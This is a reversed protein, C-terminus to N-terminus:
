GKPLGKLSKSLLRATELVREAQEPPLQTAQEQLQAAGAECVSVVPGVKAAGGEKSIDKTLELLLFRAAVGRCILEDAQSSPSMFAQSESGTLMISVHGLKLHSPSGKKLHAKEAILAARIEEMRKTLSEVIEQLTLPAAETVPAGELKATGSVTEPKSPPPEAAGAPKDQEDPLPVAVAAGVFRSSPPAVAVAERAASEAVQQRVAEIEKRLEALLMEQEQVKEQLHHHERKLAALEALVQIDEETPKAPHQVQKVVAAATTEAIEVAPPQKPSEMAKEVIEQLALVQSFPNDHAYDDPKREQWTRCMELLHPITEAGSLKADTCDLTVFGKEDLRKLSARMLKVEEKMLEFCRKRLIFNFRSCAVLNEAALAKNGMANKIERGREIISKKKIEALREMSGMQAILSELPQVIDPPVLKGLVPELVKAVEEWTPAGEGSMSLRITLLQTLLFDIKARDQTGPHPKALLRELLALIRLESAGVNSSHVVSRLQFPDIQQDLEEMWNEVAEVLVPDSSPKLSRAEPVPPKPMGFRETFLVYIPFLKKANQSRESVDLAPQTAPM